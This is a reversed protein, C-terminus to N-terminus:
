TMARVDVVIPAPSNNEETNPILKVTQTSLIGDVVPINIYKMPIYGKRDLELDYFSYAAKGNNNLDVQSGSVPLPLQETSGDDDTMVDFFAQNTNNVNKVVKCRVGSILDNEDMATIKLFGTESANDSTTGDDAARAYNSGKKKSNNANGMAVRYQPQVDGRDARASVPSDMVVAPKAKNRLFDESFNYTNVPAVKKIDAILNPDPEERKNTDAASNPPQALRYPLVDENKKSEEAVEAITEAVAEKAEPEPIAAPKIEEASEAMVRVTREVPKETEAQAVPRPATVNIKEEKPKTSRDNAEPRRKNYYKMMASKYENIQKKLEENHMKEM